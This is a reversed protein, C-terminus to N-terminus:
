DKDLVRLLNGHGSVRCRNLVVASPICPHPRPAELRGSGIHGPRAFWAARRNSRGASLPSVEVALWQCTHQGDALVNMVKEDRRLADSSSEGHHQNSLGSASGLLWDSREVFGVYVRLGSQYENYTWKRPLLSIAPLVLVGSM